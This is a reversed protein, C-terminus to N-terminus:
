LNKRIKLLSAQTVSVTNFEALFGPVIEVRERRGTGPSESKQTLGNGWAIKGTTWVSTGFTKSGFPMLLWAGCGEVSADELVSFPFWVRNGLWGKRHKGDEDSKMNHPLRWSSLKLFVRGVVPSTPFQLASAWAATGGTAQWFRLEWLHAHGEAGTSSSSGAALFCVM